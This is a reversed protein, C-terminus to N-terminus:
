LSVRWSLGSSSAFEQLGGRGTSCENDYTRDDTGCVPRYDRPCGRIPCRGGGGGGGRCEGTYDLELRRDDCQAVDLACM